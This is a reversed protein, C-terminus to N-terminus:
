RDRGHAPPGSPGDGHWLEAIKILIRATFGFIFREGFPIAYTAASRGDAGRELFAHNASDLVFAFPVEFATAVEAAELVPRFPKALGVVPTVRFNSITGRPELAGLIRVNAPRLGVEEEAERLAADVADNDGAELSGGPFSIQGGHETLDAARETLLVTVGKPHAILPVLVAAPRYSGGYEAVPLMREDAGTGVSFASANFATGPALLRAGLRARVEAVTPGKM